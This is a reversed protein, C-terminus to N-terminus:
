DVSIMRLGYRPMLDYVEATPNPAFGVLLDLDNDLSPIVYKKVKTEEGEGEDVPAEEKKEEEGEGEEAQKKSM